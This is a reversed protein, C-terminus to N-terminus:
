YGAGLPIDPRRPKQRPRPDKRQDKLWLLYEALENNTPKAFPASITELERNCDSCRITGIAHHKKCRACYRGTEYRDDLM